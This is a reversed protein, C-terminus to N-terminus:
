AAQICVLIPIKVRKYHACTIHEICPLQACQVYTYLSAFRPALSGYIAYDRTLPETTSKRQHIYWYDVYLVCVNYM